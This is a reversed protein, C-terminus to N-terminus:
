ALKALQAQLKAKRAAVRADAEAQRQEPTLAAKRAKEAARAEALQEPTMKAKAVKASAAKFAGEPADIGISDPVTAFAGAPFRVVGGNPLDFRIAKSKTAKTSRNLTIMTAVGESVPNVPAGEPATDLKSSEEVPSVIKLNSKKAAGSKANKAM